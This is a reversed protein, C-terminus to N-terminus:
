TPRDSKSPTKLMFASTARLIAASIFIVAFGTIGSVLVLTQSGMASGLLGAGNNTLMLKSILSTREQPHTTDLQLLYIALEFTALGAGAILQAVLMLPFNSGAMLWVLPVPALMLMALIGTRRAGISKSITGAVYNFALKGIIMTAHLTFYQAYSYGVFSKAFSHWHPNAFQVSFQAAAVFLVFRGASSSLLRTLLAKTSLGREQSAFDPADPVQVMFWTSIVRAVGGLIFILAFTRGMLRDPTGLFGLVSGSGNSDAAAYHLLTGSLCVGALLGIQLILNRRATYHTRVAAPTFCGSWTAWSSGGAYTGIMYFTAALFLLWPSATGNLALLALPICLVAQLGSYTSTVIRYGGLRRVLIPTALGVLCGIAIPITVILGAAAERDPHKALLWLVFVPLTSDVLGTMITYFLGDITANRLDRHLWRRPRGQAHSYQRSM